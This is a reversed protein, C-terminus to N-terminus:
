HNLLSPYNLSNFVELTLWDVQCLRGLSTKCVSDSSLYKKECGKILPMMFSNFEEVNSLKPALIALDHLTEKDVNGQLPSPYTSNVIAEIPDLYDKILLDNPIDISAKGDILEGLKGEGSNLIWDIFEKLKEM